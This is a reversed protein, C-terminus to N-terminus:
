LNRDLCYQKSGGEGGRGEGSFVKMLFIHRDRGTPSFVNRGKGGQGKMLGKDVGISAAKKWLKVIKM